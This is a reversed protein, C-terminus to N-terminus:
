PLHFVKLPVVETDLTNNYAPTNWIIKTKYEFSISTSTKDNNLRYHGADNNENADDNM